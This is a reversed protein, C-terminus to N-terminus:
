QYFVIDKEYTEGKLTTISVNAGYELPTIVVHDIDILYPEHGSNVQRRILNEYQGIRAIDGNALHLVLVNEDITVEMAATVERQLIIFYQQTSLEDYKTNLQSSQLAYALIPFTIILITLIFLASVMTFGSENNKYVTYVSTINKKEEM